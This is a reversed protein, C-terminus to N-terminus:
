SQWTQWKVVASCEASFVFSIVSSVLPMLASILTFPCFSSVTVLKLYRPETIVSSPELGWISELIACAVAANVLSFGTQFALLIERLELIRSIRERTVDMKRYAQSDHVRVASSWLLICAMSILHWRLISCMEYLSWTVLPSTRALVWFAVTGCSSRRVTTFLRLYCHYPWTEREDPRALVMKCPVTLPPLLCSMCLFLHSSLMLSHVPRSNPLDWSSPLPSCPFNSFVPQLIM